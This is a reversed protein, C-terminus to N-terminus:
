KLCKGGAQNLPMCFVGGSKSDADLFCVVDYGNPRCIDYIGSITTMRKFGGPGMLYLPIALLFMIIGAIIWKM